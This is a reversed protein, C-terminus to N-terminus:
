TRGIRTGSPHVDPFQTRGLPERGAGHEAGIHFRPTRAPLLPGPRPWLPVGNVARVAVTHLSAVTFEAHFRPQWDGDHVNCTSVSFWATSSACLLAKRGDQRYQLLGAIMLVALLSDLSYERADQANQIAEVSFTALVAALVAGSRSIGHRPLLWLLAAITLVSATAPMVRVSFPTRAIKQVGWLILPYLIPSSNDHRTNSIVESLTGSTHNTVVAEDHELSHAPLRHFRLVAAVLLLCICAAWYGDVRRRREQSM